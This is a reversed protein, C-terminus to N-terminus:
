TLRLKNLSKSNRNRRRVTLHPNNSNSKKRLFNWRKKPILVNPSKKRRRKIKTLREKRKRKRREKNRRM